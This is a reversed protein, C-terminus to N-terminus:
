KGGALMPAGTETLAHWGSIPATRGAVNHGGGYRVVGPGDLLNAAFMGPWKAPDEGVFWYLAPTGNRIEVRNDVLVLGTHRGAYLYPMFGFVAGMSGGNSRAEDSRILNGTFLVGTIPRREFESGFKFRAAGPSCDPLDFVNGRVLVDECAGLQLATECGTVTNREWRIHRILQPSGRNPSVTCLTYNWRLGNTGDRGKVPDIWGQFKNDQVCVYETPREFVESGGSIRLATRGFIPRAFRNGKILSICPWSGYVMNEGAFEWDNRLLAVRKAKIYISINGSDRGQCDVVFVGSVIGREPESPGNIGLHQYGNRFACRLFLLGQTAGVIRVVSSRVAKDPSTGDFAIDQFGIHKAGGNVFDLMAGGSGGNARQITPREGDGYAGFTYGYRYSDRTPRICAALPFLQGRRFLVRDGPGYRGAIGALAKDATRWATAPTIGDAADNGEVADVYFTRGSSALVDITRTATSTAGASDTVTLTVTYVGPDEYVHAANFGDAPPSQDGFDWTYLTDHAWPSSRWGELFVPFPAYGKDLGLGAPPRYWPECEIGIMATAGHARASAVLCMIAVVAFIIVYVAGSAGRSSNTKSGAKMKISM